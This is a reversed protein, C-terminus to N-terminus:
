SGAFQRALLDADNGRKRLPPIEIHFAALRYYLDHRFEGANIATALDSNTASVVRFDSEIAQNSGVPNFVGHELARL